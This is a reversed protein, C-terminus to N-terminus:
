DSAAGGLLTKLGPVPALISRRDLQRSGFACPGIDCGTWPADGVLFWRSMKLSNGSVVIRM